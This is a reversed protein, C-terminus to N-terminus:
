AKESSELVTKFAETAGRLETEPDGGTIMNNLAVGFTDRFETLPIIVPFAPRSIDGSGAIADIWEGPMPVGTRVAQDALISKRFPVGAGSQLLRAGMAPSIAWQCFLYGAERKESSATVGIGEGLTGTAHANPGKPMVGYGVQGVVRSEGPNELPYALRIGDLWMGVKGEAFASRAEAWDFGAVGPPATTTMLRKYLAAAEIAEPSDTALNGNADIADRDYGLMLSTWVPVNANKLGRAAFGFTNTSPDTLAEAASVLKEFTTPYALGKAKFLAKNWYLIWYDASFPLSRLVGDSDKAFTLGAQVFDGEVLAPDTLTSDQVFGSIDALWGGKELQRKQLHYSFHVVDFSPKGSGLETETRQLQEQEPTAEANVTIGTLEEFEDLHKLLTESRASTVLNVDLTSGSFRKWDVEASFAPRMGAIGAAALTATGAIFERRTSNLFRGTM